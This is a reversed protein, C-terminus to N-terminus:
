WPVYWDFIHTQRLSHAVQSGDVEVGTPTFM